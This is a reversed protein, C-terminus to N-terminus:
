HMLLVVRSILFKSLILEKFKALKKIELNISQQVVAMSFSSPIKLTVLIQKVM